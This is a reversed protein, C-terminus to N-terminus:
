DYKRRTRRMKRSLKRRNTRRRRRAGGALRSAYKSPDMMGAGLKNQDLVFSM